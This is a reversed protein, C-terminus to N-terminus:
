KRRQPRFKKQKREDQPKEKLSKKWRPHTRKQTRKDQLEKKKKELAPRISAKIENSLKYLTHLKPDKKEILILGKRDWWHRPYAANERIEFKYELKQAALRLETLTPNELAHKLPLRRGEKRTLDKDLYEPFVFYHTNERRM